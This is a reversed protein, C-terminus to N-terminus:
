CAIVKLISETSSWLRKNISMREQGNLCLIKTNDQPSNILKNKNEPLDETTM